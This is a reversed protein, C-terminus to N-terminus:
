LVIKKRLFSLLASLGVGTVETTISSREEGGWELPPGREEKGRGSASLFIKKGVVRVSGLNFLFSKSGRDSPKEL